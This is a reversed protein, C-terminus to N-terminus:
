MGCICRHYPIVYKSKFFGIICILVTEFIIIDGVM